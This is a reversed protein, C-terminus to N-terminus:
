ASPRPGTERLIPATVEDVKQGRLQVGCLEFVMARDIEGLPSLGLVERHFTRCPEADETALFTVAREFM